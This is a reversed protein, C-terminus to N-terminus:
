LKESQVLTSRKLESLYRGNLIQRALTREATIWPRAEIWECSVNKQFTVTKRFKSVFQSPTCGHYRKFEHCLHPVSGFSLDSATCKVSKGDALSAMAEWLRVDNLWEQPTRLFASLFFRRLQSCSVDCLRGLEETSYHAKRAKETWDEISELRSTM